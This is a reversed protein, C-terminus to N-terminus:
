ALVRRLLDVLERQPDQPPEPAPPEPEAHREETGLTPSSFFRKLFGKKEEEPPSEYLPAVVHPRIAQALRARLSAATQPRFAPNRELCSMTVEALMPPVHQGPEPIAGETIAQTTQMVDGRLFLPRGTLLEHLVIGLLFIDSRVDAQTDHIQEPTLYPQPIALGISSRMTRELMGCYGAIGLHLLQVRGDFTIWVCEPSVAGHVISAAHACELAGAVEGAIWASVQPSPSTQGEHLLWKNLELLTVGGAYEYVVYPIDAKGGIERVRPLNPHDLPAIQSAAEVFELRLEEDKAFQESLRTLMVETDAKKALQVEWLKSKRLVKVKTFQWVDPTADGFSAMVRAAVKELPVSEPVLHTDEGASSTLRFPDSASNLIVFVHADGRNKRLLTVLGKLALHRSEDTIVLADVSENRSLGMAETSTSSEVVTLGCALLADRLSGRKRVDAEVVLIKRERPSSRM